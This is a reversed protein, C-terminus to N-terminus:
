SLLSKAWASEMRNKLLQNDFPKMMYHSVKLKGVEIIVERNQSATLVIIPLNKYSEQERVWRILDLGSKGPMQMDAILLQFLTTKHEEASMVMQAADTSDAEFVNTFSLDKLGSRLVGRAFSSDDVILIKSNAPFM